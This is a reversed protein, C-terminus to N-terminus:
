PKINCITCIDFQYNGPDDVVLAKLYGDHYKFGEPGNNTNFAGEHYYGNAKGGWGWNCHLYRGYYENQYRYGLFGKENYQAFGVKWAEDVVGDVVWCHGNGYFRLSGSMACKSYGFMLVPACHKLSADVCSHDYSSFADIHTYGMKSFHSPISDRGAASEEGFEMGVNKAITIHLQAIASKTAVSYTSIPKVFSAWDYSHPYRHYSMVQAIATAVCGIPCKEQPNSPLSKEVLDNFPSWQHWTVSLLPMVTYNYICETTARVETVGAAKLGGDDQVVVKQLASELFQEDQDDAVKKQYALVTPINELFVELQPPYSATTDSFDLSGEDVMALVPITRRDNSVIAFGMEDEFNVVYALTDTIGTSKLSSEKVIPSMGKITRVKRGRTQHEFIKMAELADLEVDEVSKENGLMYRALCSVEVESLQLGTDDVVSSEKDSCATLMALASSLFLFSRKM